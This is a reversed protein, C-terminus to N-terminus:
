GSTRETRARVEGLAREVLREATWPEEPRWPRGYVLHGGTKPDIPLNAEIPYYRNHAEIQANLKRLDMSRAKSALARAVDEAATGKTVLAEHLEVLAAVLDREADEISRKRLAYAPAGITLARIREDVTLTFNRPPDASRFASPAEDEREESGM